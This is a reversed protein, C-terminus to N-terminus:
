DWKGTKTYAGLAKKSASYQSELRLFRYLNSVRKEGWPPPQLQDELERIAHMIDEVKNSNNKQIAWDTVVSIQDKLNDYERSEIGLFNAVEYFLPSRSWEEDPLQAREEPSNPDIPADETQTEEVPQVTIQVPQNPQATNSSVIPKAIRVEEM